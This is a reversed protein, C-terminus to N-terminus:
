VFASAHILAVVHKQQLGYRCLTTNVISISPGFYFEGWHIYHVKVIRL